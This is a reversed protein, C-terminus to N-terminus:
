PRKAHQSDLYVSFHLISIDCWEIIMIHCHNNHEKRSTQIGYEVGFLIGLIRRGARERPWIM